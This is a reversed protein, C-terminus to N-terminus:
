INCFYEEYINLIFFYDQSKRNPIM